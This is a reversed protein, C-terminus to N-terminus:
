QQDELVQVPNIGLRLSQEIAQDLTEGGGLEQKEDVISRLVLVAPSRLRVVRLQPQVRQWSHTGVLEQLGQEPVVGAQRREGLEQNRTSLAVGEEQFLAYAGQHLSSDQDTLPTGIAQGLGQRGDLRWGCYLSDQGGTDVSQRGLLLPEELRSGHNTG